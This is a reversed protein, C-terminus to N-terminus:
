CALLAGPLNEEQPTCLKWIEEGGAVWLSETEVAAATKGKRKGEGVKEVRREDGGVKKLRKMVCLKKGEVEGM